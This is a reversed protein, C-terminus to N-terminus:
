FHVESVEWLKGASKVVKLLGTVVECFYFAGLHGFKAPPIMSFFSASLLSQSREQHLCALELVILLLTFKSIAGIFMCSELNM